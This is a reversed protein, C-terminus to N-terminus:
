TGQINYLGILLCNPANGIGTPGATKAGLFFACPLPGPVTGDPNSRFYTYVKKDWSERVGGTVGWADTIHFTGNFFLAKSTSPTTDPGHVFDIG